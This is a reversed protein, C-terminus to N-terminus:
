QLFKAWNHEMVEPRFDSAKFVDLATFRALYGKIRPFRADELINWGKFKAVVHAAIRLRPGVIFDGATVSNGLLFDGAQSSALHTELAVLEATFKELLEAALAPDKNKFYAGFAPHVGAGIKLLSPDDPYLKPEPHHKELLECILDSDGLITSGYRIVPVTGKPNLELFWAPKHALDLTVLTFPLGKFRLTLLVRQTFPCDGLEDGELGGKAYLTIEPPSTM